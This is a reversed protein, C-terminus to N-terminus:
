LKAELEKIRKCLIEKDDQLKQIMDIVLHTNITKQTRLKLMVLREHVDNNVDLGTDYPVVIDFRDKAAKLTSYSVGMDAAIESDAMGIEKMAIYKDIDFTKHFPVHVPTTRKPKNSPSRDQREIGLEARLQEIRKPDGGTMVLRELEMLEKSM